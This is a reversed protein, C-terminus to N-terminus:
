YLCGDDHIALFTILITATTRTDRACGGESLSEFLFHFQADRSHLYQHSNDYEQLLGQCHAPSPATRVKFGPLQPKSSYLSCGWSKVLARPDGMDRSYSGPRKGQPDLTNGTTGLRKFKKGSNSTTGAALTSSYNMFFTNAQKLLITNTRTGLGSSPCWRAQPDHQSTARSGTVTEWGPLSEKGCSSM